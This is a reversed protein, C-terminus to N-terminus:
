NNKNKSKRRNNKKSKQKRNLNTKKNMNKRIRFQWRLSQCIMGINKSVRKCLKRTNILNKNARYKQKGIKIKNRSIRAKKIRTKYNTKLKQKKLKSM